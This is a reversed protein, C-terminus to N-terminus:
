IRLIFVKIILIMVVLSIFIALWGIAQEKMNLEKDIKKYWNRIRKKIIKSLDKKKNIM